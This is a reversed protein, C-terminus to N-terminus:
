LLPKHQFYDMHASCHPEHFFHVAGGFQFQLLVAGRVQECEVLKTARDVASAEISM